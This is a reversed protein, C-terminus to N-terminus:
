ASPAIDTLILSRELFMSWDYEYDIEGRSGGTKEAIAFINLLVLTKLLTLNVLRSPSVEALPELAELAEAPAEPPPLWFMAERVDPPRTTSCRRLM